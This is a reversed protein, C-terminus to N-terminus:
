TGTYTLTEKGTQLMLKKTEGHEVRGIIRAEVNFAAASDIFYGADEKRCYIEM